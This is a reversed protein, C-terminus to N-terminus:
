EKHNTAPSVKLFHFNRLLWGFAGAMFVFNTAYRLACVGCSMLSMNQVEILRPDAHIRHQM